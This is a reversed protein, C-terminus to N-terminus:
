IEHYKPIISSLLADIPEKTNTNRVLIQIETHWNKLLVVGLKMAHYDLGVSM